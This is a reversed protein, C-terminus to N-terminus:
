LRAQSARPLARKALRGERKRLAPTDEFGLATRTMELAKPYNKERHEYYKALEELATVRFGNRSGALETLVALSADERGCKRELAAIDWLTRFLLEDRLGADVARRFLDLAREHQEAKRLWRGLGVMEAGHTFRAQEPSRFAWPVIGTLCALTLIDMSNHHLIPALRFAEGTRLYEFYVYPIMEGPLDGQREVGLIQNELDVLRCSDFRLKWLRRAGFLLDFHPLREFPTKFRSMRYRTGVVNNKGITTSATRGPITVPAARRRQRESKDAGWATMARHERRARGRPNRLRSVTGMGGGDLLFTAKRSRADERCDGVPWTDEERFVMTPFPTQRSPDTDRNLERHARIDPEPALRGCRPRM